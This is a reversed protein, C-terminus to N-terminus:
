ETKVDPSQISSPYLLKKVRTADLINKSPAARAPTSTSKTLYMMRFGWEVVEPCLVKLVYTMRFWAPVTVNLDGRLTSNVIAKACGSVSAM